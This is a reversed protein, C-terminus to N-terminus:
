FSIQANCYGTFSSPTDRRRDSPASLFDDQAAVDWVHGQRELVFDFKQTTFKSSNLKACNFDNDTDSGSFSLILTFSGLGSSSVSYGSGSGVSALCDEGSSLIHVSGTLGGAGDSNLQMLDTFERLKGGRVSRWTGICGFGGTFDADSFARAALPSAVIAGAVVVALWLTRPGILLTPLKM